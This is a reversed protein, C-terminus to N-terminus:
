ANYVMESSVILQGSGDSLIVDQRLQTTKATGSNAIVVAFVVTGVSDAATAGVYQLDGSTDDIYLTTREYPKLGVGTITRLTGLVKSWFFLTVAAASLPQDQTSDSAPFRPNFRM